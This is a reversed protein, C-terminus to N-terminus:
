LKQLRLQDLEKNTKIAQEKMQRILDIDQQKKIREEDFVKQSQQLKEVNIPARNM